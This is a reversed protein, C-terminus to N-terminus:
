QIVVRRSWFEEMVDESVFEGWCELAWEGVMEFTQWKDLVSMRIVAEVADMANM